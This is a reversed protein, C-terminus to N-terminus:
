SADVSTPPFSRSALEGLFLSHTSFIFRDRTKYLVQPPFSARDATLYRPLPPPPPSVSKPLSSLPPLLTPQNSLINAVLASGLSHGIIHVRGGNKEFDPHRPFSPLSASPRLLPHTKPSSSLSLFRVESDM